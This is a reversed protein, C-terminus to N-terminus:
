LAANTKDLEWARLITDLLTGIFFAGVLGLCIGLYVGFISALRKNPTMADIVMVILGIAGVALTLGLVISFRFPDPDNPNVPRSAVVLAPTALILAMFLLRAFLLIVRTSRAPGGRLGDRRGDNRGDSRGEDLATEGNGPQTRDETM